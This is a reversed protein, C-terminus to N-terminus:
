EKDEDDSDGAEVPDPASEESETVLLERLPDEPETVPEEVAPNLNAAGNDFQARVPEEVDAKINAAGNDFQPREPEDVSAAAINAAGNDFQQRPQYDETRCLRQRWQWDWEYFFWDVDEGAIKFSARPKIEYVNGSPAVARVLIDGDPNFIAQVAKPQEAEPPAADRTRSRRPM